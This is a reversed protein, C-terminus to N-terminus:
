SPALITTNFTFDLDGSVLGLDRLRTEPSALQKLVYALRTNAADDVLGQTQASFM